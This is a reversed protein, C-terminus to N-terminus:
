NSNIQANDTNDVDSLIATNNPTSSVDAPIVPDISGASISLLSADTQVAVAGQISIAHNSNSM